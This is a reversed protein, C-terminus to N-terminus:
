RAVRVNGADLKDLIVVPAGNADVIVGRREPAAYDVLALAQRTTMARLDRTSYTGDPLPRAFTVYRAPANVIAFAEGRAIAGTVHYRLADLPRTNNM